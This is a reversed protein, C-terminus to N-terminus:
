KPRCAHNLRSTEPFVGAFDFLNFANTEFRDRVEDVDEGHEEFHGMLGMYLLRTEDPLNQVAQQFLFDLHREPLVTEVFAQMILVPSHSFLTEGREIRRTALLGLGRGPLATVEFAPTLPQQEDHPPPSSSSVLRPLASPRSDHFAAHRAVQEASEPTAILSIGRGNKFAADTFVCINTDAGSEPDSHLLCIPDYTWTHTYSQLKFTELYPAFATPPSSSPSTSNDSPPSVQQSSHYVLPRKSVACIHHNDVQIVLAPNLCFAFETRSSSFAVCFPSVSAMMLYKYFTM